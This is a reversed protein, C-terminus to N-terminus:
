KEIIVTQFLTTACRLLCLCVCFSFSIDVPNSFHLNIAVNLQPKNTMHFHLQLLAVLFFCCFFRSQDTDCM